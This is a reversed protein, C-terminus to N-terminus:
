DRAMQTILEAAEDLCSFPLAYCQIGTIWSILDNVNNRDLRQRLAMCESMLRGLAESRAIPQLETKSQGDYRPFVLHTVSAQAKQVRDPPPSVYRVIKGDSRGHTPVTLIEPYYRAILDWGTDKACLALPMPNVMFTEPEILAVEDSFYRFGKHVLAATLSSKGSGPAAPLLVCAKDTGVAGGHIYLLFNHANIAASWLAGKVLPGLRSLKQAYGVPEGDRYVDSHIHGNALATAHLDLTITHPTGADTKLHGIISDVLRVQAVHTFRILACTGLLRYRQECVSEVPVFPPMETAMRARYSEDALEFVPRGTTGSRSDLLGHSGLADLVTTVWKAAEESDTLGDSVLEKELGSIPAGEQMRRVLYAASANLGVLCQAEESFAVVDGDLPLLALDARLRVDQKQM